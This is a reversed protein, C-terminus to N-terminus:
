ATLAQRAQAILREAPAFGHNIAIPRGARDIVASSPVTLVSFRGALDPQALADVKVIQVADGLIAKVQELAPAQRVRCEACTPTSFALIAPMAGPNWRATSLTRRSRLALWRRVLWPVAVICVALAAVVLFRAVM